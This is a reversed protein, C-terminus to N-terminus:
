LRTNSRIEGSWLINAIQRLALGTIIVPALEQGDNFLAKNNEYDANLFAEYIEASYQAIALVSLLKGYIPRFMNTTMPNKLAITVAEYLPRTKFLSAFYAILVSATILDSTLETYDSIVMSKDSFLAEG